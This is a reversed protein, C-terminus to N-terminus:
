LERRLNMYSKYRHPSIRNNVVATRIACGPESDHQCSLGFKCLGVYEIMEPFLYALDEQSIDWLGFERMGPTDVLRGGFNLNFMELHTTTHRGKGLEGQSVEKVRLGLGPEIANMLSTKGVGSKGILVSTKGQLIQKLENIGKGTQSSVQHIPYGIRRYIDLEAELRNSGTVLDMKTIVILVPLEAAEATVLYRDLLGWKPTPNAAAFVPIVLDANSVIVQEFAHQGPIAAPRSLKSIRPLVETIMGRNQGADVYRVQDGIAIPDVKDVERVDQVRRRMSTPDATSYNLQKHLLSSLVCDIERGQTHVTYHGTSKKYVIGTDDNNNIFM